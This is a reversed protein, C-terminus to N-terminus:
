LDRHFHKALPFMMTSAANNLPEIDMHKTPTKAAVHSNNCLPSTQSSTGIIMIRTAAMNTSVNTPKARYRYM